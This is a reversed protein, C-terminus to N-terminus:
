LVTPQWVHLRWGPQLTKIRVKLWPQFVFSKRPYWTFERLMSWCEKSWSFLVGLNWVLLFKTTSWLWAFCDLCALKETFVRAKSVSCTQSVGGVGLCCSWALSAVNCTGLWALDWEGLVQGSAQCFSRSGWKQVTSPSPMLKGSPM